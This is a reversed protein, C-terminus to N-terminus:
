ESTVNKRLTTEMPWVADGWTAADRNKHRNRHRPTTPPGGRSGGRTVMVGLLWRANANVIGDM